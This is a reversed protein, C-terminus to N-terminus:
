SPKTVACTGSGAGGSPLRGDCRTLRGGWGGRERERWPRRQRAAGTLRAPAPHLPPAERRAGKGLASGGPKHLLLRRPPSRPSPVTYCPVEARAAKRRGTGQRTGHPPQPSAALGRDRPNASNTGASNSKQRRPRASPKHAPSTSAFTKPPGPPPPCIRHAQM